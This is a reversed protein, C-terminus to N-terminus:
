RIQGKRKGTRLRQRSIPGGLRKPRSRQVPATAEGLAADPSKDLSEGLSPTPDPAIAPADQDADGADPLPAEAYPEPLLPDFGEDWVIPELGPETLDPPTPDASALVPEAREAFAPEPRTAMTPEGRVVLATLKIVALTSIALALVPYLTAPSAQVGLARATMLAGGSFLIALALTRIAPHADLADRITDGALYLVALSALIGVAMASPFAGLAVAMLASDVSLLTGALAIGATAAGVSHVAGSDPTEGTKRGPEALGALEGTARFVLYLGGAGLVLDRWGPVWSGLAFAPREIGALWLIGALLGVRILATLGVGIRLARKREDHLLPVTSRRMAAVADAGLVIDIAAIIALGAWFAPHTFVDLM